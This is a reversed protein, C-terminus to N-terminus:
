HFRLLTVSSRLVEDELVGPTPDLGVAACDRPWWILVMEEKSAMGRSPINILGDAGQENFRIVWDRLTQRDM